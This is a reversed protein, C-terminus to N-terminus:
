ALNTNMSAPFYGRHVPGNSCKPTHGTGCMCTCQVFQINYMGLWYEPLSYRPRLSRPVTSCKPHKKHSVIGTLLRPLNLLSRLVRPVTSSNLTNMSSAGELWTLMWPPHSTVEFGKSCNLLKTHEAVCAKWDPWCKPLILLPKSLKNVAPFKPM